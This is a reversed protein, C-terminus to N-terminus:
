RYSQPLYQTYEIKGMGWRPSVGSIINNKTSLKYGLVVDFDDFYHEDDEWAYTVM